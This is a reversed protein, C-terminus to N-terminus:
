ASRQEMRRLALAVKGRASDLLNEVGGPKLRLREAIGDHGEIVYGAADLSYADAERDTFGAWRFVGEIGERRTIATLEPYIALRARLTPEEWWPGRQRRYNPTVTPLPRRAESDTFEEPPIAIGHLEEDPPVLVEEGEPMRDAPLLITEDLAEYLVQTLHELLAHLLHLHAPFYEEGRLDIRV